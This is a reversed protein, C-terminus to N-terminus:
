VQELFRVEQIEGSGPAPLYAEKLRALLAEATSDDQVLIEPKGDISIVTAPAVFHLTEQLINKLQQADMIERQNVRVKQYQVQDTVQLSQYNGSAREAVIEQLLRNINVRGDVVAVHQGNVIVAWANPAIIYHWGAWLLLGSLIVSILFIKKKNKRGDQGAWRAPWERLFRGVGGAVDPLKGPQPM